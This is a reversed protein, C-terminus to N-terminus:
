LVAYVIESSAIMAEIIPRTAGADVLERVDLGSPPCWVRVGIPAATKIRKAYNRAGLRGAPDDDGVVVVEAIPHRGVAMKTLRHVAMQSGAASDPRGWVSFGLESLVATDTPGEPLLISGIPDNESIFLGSRSGPEAWKAGDLTRKRLGIIRYDGDRMPFTYARGDWGVGLSRYAAADVGTERVLNEVHIPKIAQRYRRHAKLMGGYDPAVERVDVTAPVAGSADLHFWGADGVRRLSEVRQCLSGGGVVHGCWDPKRCVECPREATVRVVQWGNRLTVLDTLIRQWSTSEIVSSVM